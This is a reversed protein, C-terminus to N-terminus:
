LHHYIIYGCDSLIIKKAGRNPNILTELEKLVQSKGCNNPGTFVVISNEKLSLSTGDNFQLLEFYVKPQETQRQEEM